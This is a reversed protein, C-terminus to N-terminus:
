QAALGGFVMRHGHATDMYERARRILGDQFATPPGASAKTAM